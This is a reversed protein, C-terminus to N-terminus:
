KMGEKFYSPYTSTLIWSFRERLNLSAMLFPHQMKNRMQIRLKCSSSLLMLTPLPSPHFIRPIGHFTTRNSGADQCEMQCRLTLIKPFKPTYTLPLFHLLFITNFGAKRQHGLCHFAKCRSKLFEGKDGHSGVNGPHHWLGRAQDPSTLSSTAISLILVVVPTLYTQSCESNDRVRRGLLMLVSFSRCKGAFPPLHRESVYVCWESEKEREGCATVLGPSAQEPPPPFLHM